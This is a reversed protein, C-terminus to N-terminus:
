ELLKKPIGSPETPLRELFAKKFGKKLLDKAAFAFM